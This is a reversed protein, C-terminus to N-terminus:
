PNRAAEFCFQSRPIRWLQMGDSGTASISKELPSFPHVRAAFYREYQVHRLVRLRPHVNKNYWSETDVADPCFVQLEGRDIKAGLASIMGRDEYEFFRGMSTPFVILPLGAHGFVLRRWIRHLQNSYGKHYERNM